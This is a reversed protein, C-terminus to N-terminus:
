IQAHHFFTQIEMIKRKTKLYRKKLTFHCPWLTVCGKTEMKEFIQNQLFFSFKALFCWYRHLLTIQKTKDCVSIEWGLESQSPKLTNPAITHFSNIISGNKEL